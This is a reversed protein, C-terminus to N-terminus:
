SGSRNGRDRIMELVQEARQYVPDSPDNVLNKVKEMQKVAEDMRNIQMLMIGRNFNAQVHDPNRELVKNTEQIAKMPNDPDYMYAIAMDTRVDLNDPNIELARRYGAIARKAFVARDASSQREMWDYNLNGVLVWADETNEAEAIREQEEAALDYREERIYLSVLERRKEVQAAGTLRDIEAQLAEAQEAVDAPLPAAQPAAQAVPPPAASGSGMEKSVVTIMYLGVVLLIGAGVLIAVQRGVASQSPTASGKAPAKPATGPAKAVPPRPPAPPPVVGSSPPGSAGAVRADLEAGCRSCYRAAPPNLWGCANCYVGKGAAVPSAGPETREAGADATVAEAVVHEEVAVGAEEEAVFASEGEVAALTGPVPAGCLDCREAGEPIRAGCEECVLHAM